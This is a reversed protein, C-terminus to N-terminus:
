GWGGTDIGTHGREDNYEQWRRCYRAEFDNPDEPDSLTDDADAPNWSLNTSQSRAYDMDGWDQSGQTSSDMGQGDMGQSESAYIDVTSLVFLVM